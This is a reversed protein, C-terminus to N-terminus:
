QIDQGSLRQLAVDRRSFQLFNTESLSYYQAASIVMSNKLLATSCHSLVFV